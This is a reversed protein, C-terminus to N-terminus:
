GSRDKLLVTEMEDVERSELTELNPILWNEHDTSIDLFDGLKEEITKINDERDESRTVCGQYRM